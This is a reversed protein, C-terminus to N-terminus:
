SIVGALSDSTDAAQSKKRFLSAFPLSFGKRAAKVMPALTRAIEEVTKSVPSKPYALVLPTGQNLASLVSDADEPLVWTIQRDLVEAAESVGITSNRTVRTAVLQMRRDADPDQNRIIDMLRSTQALCPLSLQMAMLITDALEVEKPLDDESLSATDVVVFDYSNRLQELIMFLTHPDPRAANGPAPLVHLGSEHEAMVSRLYTADLRSIDDVLDGWTYDYKLDLFYPVEGVPQRLDLLM